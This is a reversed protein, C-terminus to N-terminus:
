GLGLTLALRNLAVAPASRPAYAIVSKGTLVAEAAAVGRPVPELVPAGLKGLEALQDGSLVRRPEYLTPVFGRMKKRAGLGDLLGLVYEATRVSLPEAIIPVLVDDAAEVAAQAFPGFGPPTDIVILDATLGIIIRPFTRRATPEDAVLAPTAGLVLYSESAVVLARDAPVKGALVDSLGLAISMPDLGSAYTAGGVPDSDVLVVRRLHRAAIAALAVAISTKGVGGKGSVIALTRKQTPV